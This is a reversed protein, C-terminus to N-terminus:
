PRHVLFARAAAGYNRYPEVEIEPHRDLFEKLALREGVGRAAAMHDYDDFLLVSGQRLAPAVYELALAAPEYIDTDIVAVTVSEVGLATISKGTLTDQFFGPV